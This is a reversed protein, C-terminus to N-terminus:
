LRQFPVDGGTWRYLHARCAERGDKDKYNESFYWLGNGVCCMGTSGWKFNWAAPNSSDNWADPVSSHNESDYLRRKFPKSSFDVAFLSYNRFQPKRGKYVAMFLRHQSPDYAMNQVGYTTNGTNIFIKDLPKKPGTEDFEGFRVPRAM